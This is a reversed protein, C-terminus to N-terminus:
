SLPAVYIHEEELEVITEIEDVDVAIPMDFELPKSPKPIMRSARSGLMRRRSKTSYMEKDATILLQDFAQGSFPYTSWGISVGVQAAEDGVFLEFDSVANEIRRCLDYIDEVSTDPILAVFEDGAYRALFDYERLQGKIVRGIELLMKDGAKHGFSDNVQKFGDLDLMLVQFSSNTRQARAVEREFQLQLSRANPLGTMPDTLAHSETEAHRLSKVVADAAIQTITEVLRLHEDTYGEPVTSYLSVAGILREDAVIPLSIMARYDTTVSSRLLQLDPWPSCSSAPERSELVFGTVGSGVHVVHDNFVAAHKGAVHAAIADGSRTDVLYVACTDFHVFERVQDTFLKLTEDLTLSSSFDKALEYMTVAERNALKIQDVYSSETSNSVVTRLREDASRYGLGQRTIEAELRDLNDLFIKVLRPDFKTGAGKRLTKCAQKRSAAPRYPRAERLTDYADAVALIRATLPINEGKLAEPYGTGDWNEHHYKVTPVVPTDFGVKELISAGVSAHIKIKEAEAHTLEEPKNLIHDPVALKGIDHLLAGARLASIESESLGLFEGVGVAFMQTRRVHGIGLQDRADIATALAEVTALHIRSGESIERTKSALRRVHVAYAVDAIVAIPLIVLGFELGFQIFTANVITTGGITVLYSVLLYLFTERLLKRAEYQGTVYQGLYNLTSNVIFHGGSMLVTAAIMKWPRDAVLQIAASNANLFFGLVLYYMSGVIFTSITDSSIALVSRHRDYRNAFCAAVSGALAILTGAAAGLWIIGWLALVDKVQVRIPSNPLRLDHRGILVAVFTAVAVAVLDAGNLSPLFIVSVAIVCISVAAIVYWLAQTIVTPEHNGSTSM